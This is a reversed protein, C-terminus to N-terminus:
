VSRFDAYADPMHLCRGCSQPLAGDPWYRGFTATATETRRKRLFARRYDLIVIKRTGSICWISRRCRFRLSFRKNELNRNGRDSQGCLHSVARSRKLIHNEVSRVKKTITKAAVVPRRIQRGVSAPCRPGSSETEARDCGPSAVHRREPGSQAEPQIVM